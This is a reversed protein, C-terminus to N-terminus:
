ALHTGKDPSYRGLHLLYGSETSSSPYRERSLGHHIVTARPLPVDSELQHRSLAVYHVDPNALFVRTTEPSRLYHLTHVVACRARNSFPLGIAGNLHAIDYGERAIEDFAWACHKLDDQWTPPWRPTEFLARVRCPARSDGTAFLTVDHGRACLGEVLEACF